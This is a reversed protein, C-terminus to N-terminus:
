IKTLAIRLNEYKAISRRFKRYVNYDDKPYLGDKILLEKTYKLTMNDVKEFSVKYSGFKTELAIDNPLVGLVYGEPVKIIFEDVDKYGRTVKLPLKRTRYRKPVYSNRNFVNVRFLYEGQNLSAYDRITVMLKEEFEIKDQNNKHEISRVELNNNYSWVSSKYYKKLEDKSSTEISFKEDYQIGKSLIELTADLSGSADLQITAVTKQLNTENIYAPTRKIVGGEPTVVLVDRNDTFDGLFGFPMIQSTCELWVDDGNNPINLIVHNGQELSAFDNEFSVNDGRDAEVHVYYSTVGVVDLLAKTYNTLGKCDGYGVKDVQNAAIPQIGGIGVQVSIYRTKEQVFDYVIKAKEIETKANATLGLIKAKTVEDIKDKGVLIEDKMWQGFEKWNSYSGRVGETSFKNLSVLLKPRIYNLSPASSEYKIAPANNIVYKLHGENSENKISYGEFNKPKTTVGLSAPYNVSFSSNEVSIHYGPMPSWNPIFGTSSTKYECEFVVTYPYTIPTYELYKVRSDSYLTGGDVASVDTFKKKTIKKIEKGLSNYIRAELKTVKTNNDYGVVAGVDSNGLKNLITIVKRQKVIMQDISTVKVIVDNSRIVVNSNEKLTQPIILANLKSDQAFLAFSQFLLLIPIIKHLQKNM